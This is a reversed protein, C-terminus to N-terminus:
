DVIDNGNSASPTIPHNALAQELARRGALDRLQPELAILKPRSKASAALVALEDVGNSRLSQPAGGFDGLIDKLRSTSVGFDYPEVDYSHDLAEFGDTTLAGHRAKDIRALRVWAAATTPSIRLENWTAAAARPYDHRSLAREAEAAWPEALPLIRAFWLSASAAPTVTAVYSTITLVLFIVAAIAGVVSFSRQM